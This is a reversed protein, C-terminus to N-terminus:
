RQPKAFLIDGLADASLYRGYEPNRTMLGANCAAAFIKFLDGKYPEQSLSASSVTDHYRLLDILENVIQERDMTAGGVEQLRYRM